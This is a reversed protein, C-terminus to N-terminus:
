KIVLQLSNSSQGNIIVTLEIEGRGAFSRPLSLNIQDLGILGDATEGQAGAFLVPVEVGDLRAITSGNHHRFGTGFLVLYLEEDEQGFHIPLAIHRAQITDYRTLPEYNVRSDNQVRMLVGAPFGRGSSDASFLSPATEAIEITSTAVPKFANRITVTALGVTAAAPVQFNIQTPSVFFLPASHEIGASDRVVIQAGALQVPLPLTSAIHTEISFHQGFATAISERALLGPSFDAASVIAATEAGDCTYAAELADADASVIERAIPQDAFSINMVGVSDASSNADVAAFHIVALQREGAKWTQNPPLIATIGLRGSDLETQVSQLLANASDTGRTVNFLRWKTPDFRLSFGLANEDGAAELSVFVTKVRLPSTASSTFRLARTSTQNSARQRNNTPSPNELLSSASPGGLGVAPDLGAAYRGAQVWDAITLRGDGLTGRPACDARQFESATNTTDYAAVFRGLQTWDSMTVTGDPAGRPAVDSEYGSVVTFTTTTVNACGTKSLTIAGTTAGVPVAVTIQNGAGNVNVPSATVNNNFKVTIDSTFNAGNITVNSGVIGTGPSINNVTPCVVVSSATFNESLFSDDLGLIERISPAFSYNNNGPSIRYDGNLYCESFTYSGSGNTQMVVPAISGDSLLTLTMNATNTSLGSVTGALILGASKALFNVNSNSGSINSASQPEFSVPNGNSATASPTVTYTVGGQQQIFEYKYPPAIPDDPLSRAAFTPEAMLLLSEGLLCTTSGAACNPSISVFLTNSTLGNTGPVPSLVQVSARGATKVDSATIAARLQTSSVFTTARQSNNWLVVSGQIFNQGTVTLTFAPSGELVTSPEISTIVPLTTNIKFTLANTTGLGPTLVSVSAIGPASLDSASITATMKQSTGFQTPRQSGNWLVVSQDTFGSGNVVLSLGNGGSNTSSPTLSSLAQAPNASALEPFNYEGNAGNQITRSFGNSGRIALTVPYGAGNIDFVRGSIQIIGPANATPAPTDPALTFAKSSPVGNTFVTLLVAGKAFNSTTIPFSAYTNNSWGKAGNSCATANPDPSLYIVQENDLRMMQVVPYNSPSNQTDGSDAESFGQFAVGSVCMAKGIGTWTATNIAPRAIPLANLGVDYLEASSFVAVLTSGFYYAGGTALVRGDPLITSSHWARPSKFKATNPITQFGDTEPDYLLTEGTSPLSAQVNGAAAVYKFGGALLVKGNPLVNATHRRRFPPDVSTKAWQGTAPDFLEATGVYNAATFVIGRPGGLVLVKGSPLLSASHNYRPNNMSATLVSEGTTPNYIEATIIATTSSSTLIGGAILLSGNPLLTATHQQRSAKMSGLQTWQNTAPDFVEVVAIATSGLESNAAGVSSGGTVLVKGSPLLTATHNFHPSKMSGVFNWSSTSPDYIEASSLVTGNNLQGGAALVRGDPLLTATHGQRETRLDGTIQWLGTAPDFLESSRTTTDFDSGGAVLVKGNVLLTATHNARETTMTTTAGNAVAATYNWSDQAPDQFEVGNLPVASNSNGAVVLVRGNPMMTATHSFRGDIFIVSKTWTMASVNYLESTKSAVGSNFGGVIFIQGNQILTATHGRRAEAMPANVLVWTQKFPFYIESSNLTNAGDLGGTILVRGDPLATATHQRRAVNMSLRAESWTGSRSDYIETSKLSSLNNDGGGAIIVKGTLILTATHERRANNLSGTVSWKKTIPDYLEADKLAGNNNEGGALLVAGNIPLSTLFLLTATAKARATNLKNSSLTWKAAVPDYIEYSDLYGNVNRGGAVLVSGDRLLVAIHEFRAVNLLATDSWKGTAPDYIEVSKLAGSTDGVRSNRGGVVLLRGNPLLTATHSERATILASTAASPAALEVRSTARSAARSAILQTALLITCVILLCRAITGLRLTTPLVFM